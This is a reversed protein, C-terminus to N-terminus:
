QTAPINGDEDGYLERYAAAAALMTARGSATREVLAHSDGM